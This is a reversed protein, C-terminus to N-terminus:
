LGDLVTWVVMWLVFISLMMMSPVWMSQPLRMVEDASIDGEEAV